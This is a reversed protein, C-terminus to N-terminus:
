RRRQCRARSSCACAWVCARACARREGCAVWLGAGGWAVGRWAAGRRAGGVWGGEFDAMFQTAGSNLANIVM